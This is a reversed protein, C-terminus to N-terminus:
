GERAGSNVGPKQHSGHQKDKYNDTNHQQTKNAKMRHGTFGNNDIDRSQGNRIAGETKELTITPVQTDV